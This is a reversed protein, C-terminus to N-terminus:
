DCAASNGHTQLVCLHELRVTFVAVTSWEAGVGLYLIVTQAM